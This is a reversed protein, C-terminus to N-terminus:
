DIFASLASSEETSGREQMDLFCIFMRDDFPVKPPSAVTGLVVSPAPSQAITSAIVLIFIMKLDMESSFFSMQSIKYIDRDLFKCFVLVLNPLIIVIVWVSDDLIELDWDPILVNWIRCGLRIIIFELYNKITAWNSGQFKKFDEAYPTFWAFISNKLFEFPKELTVCVPHVWKLHNESNKSWFFKRIFSSYNQFFNQFWRLYILKVSFLSQFERLVLM